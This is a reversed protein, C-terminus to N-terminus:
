FELRLSLDLLDNILNVYNKRMEAWEMKLWPTYQEPHEEIATSLKKGDIYQWDAIETKNVSLDGDYLAM